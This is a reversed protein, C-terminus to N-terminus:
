SFTFKTRDPCHLEYRVVPEFGLGPAEPLQTGKHHSLVQLACSSNLVLLQLSTAALVRTLVALICLCM